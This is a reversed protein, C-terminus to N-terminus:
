TNSLSEEAARCIEVYVETRFSNIETGTVDQVAIEFHNPFDSPDLDTTSSNLLQSIRIAFLATYPGCDYANRQQPCSIQVPVSLTRKLLRSLYTISAAASATNCGGSDLHYLNGREVDCILLSWHTGNVFLSKANNLPLFIWKRLPLKVGEIFEDFEEDDQCQFKLFSAVSPDLLM